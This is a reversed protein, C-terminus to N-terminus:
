HNIIGKQVLQDAQVNLSNRDVRGETYAKAAEQPNTALLDAFAEPSMKAVVAPQAGETSSGAAAALPAMGADVPPAVPAAPDATTPDAAPAAPAPAVAPQLSYEEAFAAATEATVEVDPNTKLFLEAHKPELNADKFLVGAKFERLETIADAQGKTARDLAERLEKPEQQVPESM